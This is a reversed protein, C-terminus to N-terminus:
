PRSVSTIHNRFNSLVPKTCSKRLPGFVKAFKAEYGLFYFARICNEADDYNHYMIFGYRSSTLPASPIRRSATAALKGKAHKRPCRLSLRKAPLQESVDGMAKWCRMPLIRNSGGFTFTPRETVITLSKTSAAEAAMKDVISRQYQLHYPLHRRHGHGFTSIPM